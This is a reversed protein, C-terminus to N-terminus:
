MRALRRNHCGLHLKPLCVHGLDWGLNPDDIQYKWNINEIQYKANHTQYKPHHIPNEPHHIQNQSLTPKASLSSKRPLFQM